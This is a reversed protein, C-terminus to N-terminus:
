TFRPISSSLLLGTSDDDDDHCGALAASLATAIAITKILKM